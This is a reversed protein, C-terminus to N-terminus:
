SSGPVASLVKLAAVATPGGARIAHALVNRFERETLTEIALEATIV